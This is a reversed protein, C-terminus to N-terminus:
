QLYNRFHGSSAIGVRLHSQQKVHIVMSVETNLLIGDEYHNLTGGSVFYRKGLIKYVRTVAM